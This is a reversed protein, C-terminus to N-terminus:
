FEPEIVLLPTSNINPTVAMLFLFKVQSIAAFKPIFLFSTNDKAGPTSSILMSDAKALM